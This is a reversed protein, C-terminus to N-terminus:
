TCLMFGEANLVADEKWHDYMESTIPVPCKALKQWLEEQIKEQKQKIQWSLVKKFSHVIIYYITLSTWDICVHLTYTVAELLLEREFKTGM